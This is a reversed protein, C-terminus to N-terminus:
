HLMQIIQDERVEGQLMEILTDKKSLFYIGPMVMLARMGIYRATKKEEVDVQIREVPIKPGGKLAANLSEWTSDIRKRTCECAEKQGLFVIRAVKPQEVTKIKTAAKPPPKEPTPNGNCSLLLSALATLVLIVIPKRTM